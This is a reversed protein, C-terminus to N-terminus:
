GRAKYHDTFLTRLRAVSSSFLARQDANLVPTEKYELSLFFFSGKTTHIRAHRSDSIGTSAYVDRLDCPALSVANVDLEGRLATQMLMELYVEDIRRRNWNERESELNKTFVEYTITAYLPKGLAPVDGGNEICTIMVRDCPLMRLMTHMIGYVEHVQSLMNPLHADQKAKRGRAWRDAMWKAFNLTAVLGTGGIFSSILKYTDHDM